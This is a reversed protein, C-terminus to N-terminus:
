LIKRGLATHVVLAVSRSTQMLGEMTAQTAAPDTLLSSGQLAEQVDARYEAQALQREGETLPRDSIVHIALLEAAFATALDIALDRAKDAPESGDLAVLIKRIMPHRKRRIEDTGHVRLRDYFAM